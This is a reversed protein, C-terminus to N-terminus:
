TVGQDEYITVSGSLAGTSTDWLFALAQGPPIILHADVKLLYDKNVTDLRQYFLTGANTLGTANTDASFTGTLAASSGLTLNVPTIATESAFSATGTVNHVEVSGAVTSRTQIHTVHLNKTGTNKIYLFYDDAGVPDIADYSVTFAKKYFENIHQEIPRSVAEVDARNEENIRLTNGTGSGDKILAM